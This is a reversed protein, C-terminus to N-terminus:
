LCNGSWDLAIDDVSGDATGVSPGLVGPGLDSGTKDLETDDDDDGGTVATGVAGEVAATAGRSLVDEGDSGDLRLVERGRGEVDREVEVALGVDSGHSVQRGSVVERGADLVPRNHRQAKIGRNSVISARGVRGASGAQLTRNRKNTTASAREDDLLGVQLSKAGLVDEEVVAVRRREGDGGAVAQGAQDAHDRGIGALGDDVGGGLATLDGGVEAAVGLLNNTNVVIDASLGANEGRPGTEVIELLLRINGTRTSVDERGYTLGKEIHISL